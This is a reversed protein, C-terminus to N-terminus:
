ISMLTITLNLSFMELLFISALCFNTKKYSHNLQKPINTVRIWSTFESSLVFFHHLFFHKEFPVRSKREIQNKKINEHDLTSYKKREEPLGM